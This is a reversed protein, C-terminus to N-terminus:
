KYNSTCPYRRHQHLALWFTVYWSANGSARTHAVMSVTDLTIPLFNVPNCKTSSSAPDGNSNESYASRLTVSSPSSVNTVKGFPPYRHSRCIEPKLAGNGDSPQHATNRPAPNWVTLPRENNSAAIHLSKMVTLQTEIIIRPNPRFQFCTNALSAIGCGNIICARSSLLANLRPSCCFRKFLAM